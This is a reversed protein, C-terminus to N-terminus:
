AKYEDEYDDYAEFHTPDQRFFYNVAEIRTGRKREHLYIMVACMRCVVIWRSVSRNSSYAQIPKNLRNLRSFKRGCYDCMLREHAKKYAEEDALDIFSPSTEEM